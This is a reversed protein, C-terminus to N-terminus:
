AGRESKIQGTRADIVLDIRRGDETMWSVHYNTGGEEDSFLETTVQYGGYRKKLDRYIDKLPKIEGKERAERAESPSFSQGWQGQALVPPVTLAALAIASVLTKM